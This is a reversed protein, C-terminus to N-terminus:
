SLVDCAISQLEAAGMFSVTEMRILTLRREDAAFTKKVKIEPYAIM